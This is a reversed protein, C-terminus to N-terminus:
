KQLTQRANLYSARTSLDSFTLLVQAATVGHATLLEDYVRYLRGQGVASAAQLEDMATPRGALGLVQTGRAIAGSTVLVLMEGATRAVAVAACIRALQEARLEGRDTAVVASGLKFLTLPM